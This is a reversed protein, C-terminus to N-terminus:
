FMSFSDFRKRFKGGGPNKPLIRLGEPTKEMHLPKSLQNFNCSIFDVSHIERPWSVPLARLEAKLSLCAEERVM